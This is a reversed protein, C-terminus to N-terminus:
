QSYLAQYSRKWRATKFCSGLRPRAEMEVNASKLCQIVISRDVDHDSDYDARERYEKEGCGKFARATNFKFYGKIQGNMLKTLAIRDNDRDWEVDACQNVNCKKRNFSRDLRAIADLEVGGDRRWAVRHLRSV